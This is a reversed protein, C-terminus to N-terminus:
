EARRNEDLINRVIGFAEELGSRNGMITTYDIKYKRLLNLMRKDIEKAEEESQNRGSPNYEKLRDIFFTLNNQAKFSEVIYDTFAKRIRPNQEDYYMLGVLIPSDTIVAEVQGILMNQMYQQTGTVYCQHKLAEFNKEWTLTKAFEQVYEVNYGSEKLLNFIGGSFTSKGSGPGALANIVLTHKYEKKVKM